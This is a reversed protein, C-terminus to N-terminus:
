CFNPQRPGNCQGFSVGTAARECLYAGSLIELLYTSFFFPGSVANIWFFRYICFFILDAFGFRDLQPALPRRVGACCGFCSCGVRRKWDCLRARPRAYATNIGLPPRAKARASSALRGAARWTPAAGSRHPAPERAVVLAAVRWAGSGIAYGHM